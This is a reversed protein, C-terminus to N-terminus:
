ESDDKESKDHFLTVIFRALPQVVLRDRLVYFILGMVVLAGGVCAFGLPLNGTRDGIFYALAFTLYLLAMAGVITVVAVIAIAALLVTLKEATSLVLLRKQLGLYNKLELFLRKVSEINKESAFM